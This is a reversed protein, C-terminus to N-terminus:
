LFPEHNLFTVLSGDILNCNEFLVVARSHTQLKVIALKIHLFIPTLLIFLFYKTRTIFLNISGAAKKYIETIAPRLLCCFLSISLHMGTYRNKGEVQWKHQIQEM